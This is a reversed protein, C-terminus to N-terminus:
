VLCVNRLLYHCFGNDWIYGDVDTFVTNRLRSVKRALPSLITDVHQDTFDGATAFGVALIQKVGQFTHSKAHTGDCTRM